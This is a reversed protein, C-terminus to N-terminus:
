REDGDCKENAEEVEDVSNEIQRDRSFYNMLQHLPITRTSRTKAAKVMDRSNQDQDAKHQSFEKKNKALM